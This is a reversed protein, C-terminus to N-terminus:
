VLYFLREILAVLVILYRGSMGRKPQLSMGSQSETMDSTSQGDHGSPKFPNAQLSQHSLQRDIREEIQLCSYLILPQLDPNRSPHNPSGDSVFTNQKNHSKNGFGQSFSM